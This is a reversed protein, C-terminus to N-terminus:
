KHGERLHRQSLGYNLFCVYRRHGLELSLFPVHCDLVHYVLIGLGTEADADM